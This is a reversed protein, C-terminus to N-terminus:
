FDTCRGKREWDGFRTPEKLKGGRMPGGYEAGSPGIAVMDDDEDDDELEESLAPTNTVTPKGSPHLAVFDDGADGSFLRTQLARTAPPRRATAAKLVRRMAM